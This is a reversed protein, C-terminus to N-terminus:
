SVHFTAVPLDPALSVTLTLPGRAGRPLVFVYVARVTAGPALAGGLPHAPAASSAVAEQGAVEATVAVSGLALRHAARNTVAVTLALGPGGVEGPGQGEVTVPRSGLLVARASTGVTVPSAPPAPPLTRRPRPAVTGLSEPEPPSPSVSASVSPSLSPSSSASTPAGTSAAAGGGAAAPPPGTTGAATGAPGSCGALLLAASVAASVGVGARVGM